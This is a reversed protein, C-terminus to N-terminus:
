KEGGASGDSAIEADISERLAAAEASEDGDLIARAEWFDGMHLNRAALLRLFAPARLDAPLYRSIPDRGGRERLARLNSRAVNEGEHLLLPAVLELAGLDDTNIPLDPAGGVWEDTGEPGLLFAAVLDAPEAIGAAGLLGPQAQHVLPASGLIRRFDVPSRAGILIIEGTAPPRLIFVREFATRFTRVLMRLAEPPLKYLQVWQLFAGDESVRRVARLFFERTFLPASAPTWPESPQSVLVEWRRGALPGSLLFRADGAWLRVRPSELAGSLFPAFYRAAPESTIARAFAPEIELIDIPGGTTKHLSGLTTGSGLGILGASGGKGLLAPLVGLLIQTPLDARSAQAPDAPVTGEAKGNAKAHVTPGFREISVVAERGEAILVVERATEGDSTAPLGGKQIMEAPWQYVGLLLGSLDWGGGSLSAAAIGLPVIAGAAGWVLSRSGIPRGARGGVHAAAAVIAILVLGAIYSAELGIRAVLLPGGLLAGLACGLGNAAVLVGTRAPADALAWPLVLGLPACGALAVFGALCAGWWPSYWELARAGALYVTSLHPVFFYVAALFLLVVPPLAAPPVAARFLGSRGATRTGGVFLVSGLGIGLVVAGAALAFAHVSSGVVLALLRTWYAEWYIVTLGSLFVLRLMAGDGGARRGDGQADRPDLRAGWPAGSSRALGGVGCLIPLAAAAVLSAREGLAPRLWIPALVAGIAGGLANVGYLFGVRRAPPEPGLAAVALPFGAGAPVSAAAIVLVLLGGLGWPLRDLSELFSLLMLLILSAAGSSVASVCWCRFAISPDSGRGRRLRGLVLEGAWSGAALGGLIGALVFSTSDTTSGLIRRLARAWLVEGGVFAAGAIFLSAALYRLAFSM